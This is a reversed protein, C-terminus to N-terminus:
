LMPYISTIKQEDNSVYASAVDGGIKWLVTM